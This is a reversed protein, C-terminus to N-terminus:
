TTKFCIPLSPATWNAWGSDGSDFTSGAQIRAPVATSSDGDLYVTFPTVSVCTVTVLRTPRPPIRGLIETVLSM